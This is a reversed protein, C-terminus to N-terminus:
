SLVNKIKLKATVCFDYSKKNKHYQHGTKQFKEKKM